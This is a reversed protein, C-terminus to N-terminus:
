TEYVRLMVRANLLARAMPQAPRPGGIASSRIESKTLFRRYNALTQQIRMSPVGRLVHLTEISAPLM